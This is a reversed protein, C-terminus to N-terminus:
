QNDQGQVTLYGLLPLHDSAYIYNIANYSLVHFIESAKPNLLIYDITKAPKSAPATLPCNASCSLSFEEKLTSIYTSNPLANLDGALILPYTSNKSLTNLAKVQAERNSEIDLHTSAFAIEIGSPIKCRIIGVARGEGTPDPMPLSLTQQDSIPYKSLIADGYSGGQYAIAKSFYYHMGTLRALEKAEDIPARATMSDVEQLAVLDPNQKQIVAAINELQIDDTAKDPPAGHHINYTLVKLSNVRPEKDPHHDSKGCSFCFVFLALLPLRPLM